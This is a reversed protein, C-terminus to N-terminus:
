TLSHGARGALASVYNIPAHDALDRFPVDAARIRNELYGRLAKLPNSTDKAITPSTKIAPYEARAANQDRRVESPTPAPDPIRGHRDIYIAEGVHRFQAQGALLSGAKSLIASLRELMDDRRLLGTLIDKVHPPDFTEPPVRTVIDCCNVHRLVRVKGGVAAIFEQDGVRPSGFTVLRPGRDRLEAAALTAVAAGLSHGGLVIHGPRTTLSEALQDRIALYAASFGEHVKGGQWWRIPRVRLDAIVDEIKGAETGRFMVFTTGDSRAAVFCNTGWTKLRDPINEGGIWSLLELGARALASRVLDRDGYALRSLEACLLPLSGQDTDTWDVFFDAALKGKAPCYLADPTTDYDYCYAMTIRKPSDPLTTRTPCALLCVLPLNPFPASGCAQAMRIVLWEDFGVTGAVAEIVADAGLASGHAGRIQMQRGFLALLRNDGHGVGVPFRGRGRLEIGTPTGNLSNDTALPNRQDPETREDVRTPATGGVSDVMGEDHSSFSRSEPLIDPGFLWLDQEGGYAIRAPQREGYEPCSVHGVRKINLQGPLDLDRRVVRDIEQM